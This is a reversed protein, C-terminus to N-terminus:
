IFNSSSCCFGRRTANREQGWSTPTRPASHDAQPWVAPYPLLTDAASTEWRQGPDPSQNHLTSVWRPGRGPQQQGTSDWNHLDQGRGPGPRDKGGGGGLHLEREWFSPLQYLTPSPRADATQDGPGSGQHKKLHESAGRGVCTHTHTHTRSGM